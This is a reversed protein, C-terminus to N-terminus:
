MIGEEKVCIENILVKAQKEHHYKFFICWKEEVSLNETGVKGALCDKFLKELKPLEYFIIETSDTLLENNLVKVKTVERRTCASLLHRLAERSNDTDSSFMIKFVVDEMLCLREEAFSVNSAAKERFFRKQENLEM